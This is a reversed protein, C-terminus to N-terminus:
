NVIYTDLYDTILASWDQGSVDRLTGEFDQRSALHFANRSYYARLFDYFTEGLSTDLAVMLSAGRRYVVLSYESM